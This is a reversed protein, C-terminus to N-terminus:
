ESERSPKRIQRPTGRTLTALTWQTARHDEVRAIGRDQHTLTGVKLDILVFSRTLRNYFVLDIWYHQGDPTIRQQRAM